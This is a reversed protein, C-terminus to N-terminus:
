AWLTEQEWGTNWTMGLIMATTTKSEEWLNLLLSTQIGLLPLWLFHHGCFFSTQLLPVIYQDKDQGVALLAQWVTQLVCVGHMGPYSVNYVTHNSTCLQLGSGLRHEQITVGKGMQFTGSKRKSCNECSCNQLLCGLLASYIMKPPMEM